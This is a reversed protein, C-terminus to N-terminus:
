HLITDGCYIMWFNRPNKKKKLRRTYLRSILSLFFSAKLHFFNYPNLSIEGRDDSSRTHAGTEPIYVKSYFVAFSLSWQNESDTLEIEVCLLVICLILGCVSTVCVLCHAQEIQMM